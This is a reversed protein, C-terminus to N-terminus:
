LLHVLLKIGECGLIMDLSLFYSIKFLAPFLPRRHCLSMVTDEPHQVLKAALHVPTSQDHLIISLLFM